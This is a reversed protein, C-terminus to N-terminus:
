SAVCQAKAGLPETWQGHELLSVFYCNAVQTTASKSYTVPGILGGLTENHITYLGNLLDASTSNPGIKAAEAAAAFMQMGAWVDQVYANYGPNTLMGPAYQNIAAFYEKQAPTSDQYSPWVDDLVYVKTGNLSAEKNWGPNILGGVTMFAGNYGQRLCSGIINLTVTPSIGVIAMNAGANKLSLCPATFDPATPSIATTYVMNTGAAKAAQQLENQLQTMNQPGGLATFESVKTLGVLKALEFSSTVQASVSLSAPFTYTPAGLNSAGASGGIIPIHQQELYPAWSTQSAAASGIVAIVHDQQVLKKVESLGQAPNSADDDAILNVPHGNIGGHANTWKAWVNAMSLWLPDGYAGSASEIAGVNIPSGSAASASGGASVASASGASSASSSSSCASMLALCLAAAAFGASKRFRNRQRRRGPSDGSIPTGIM